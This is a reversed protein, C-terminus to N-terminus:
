FHPQWALGLLIQRILIRSFIYLLVGFHTNHGISVFTSLVRTCGVGSRLITWADVGDLRYNGSWNTRLVSHALYVAKLWYFAGGAFSGSVLLAATNESVVHVLFRLRRIRMDSYGLTVWSTATSTRSGPYPTMWMQTGCDWLLQFCHADTHCYYSGRVNAVCRLSSCLKWRTFQQSPRRHGSPRPQSAPRRGSPDAPRLLWRARVAHDDAHGRESEGGGRVEPQVRVARLVQIDGRRPLEGWREGAHVPDNAAPGDRAWHAAATVPWHPSGTGSGIAVSCLYRRLQICMTVVVFRMCFTVGWKAVAWCDWCDKASRWLIM